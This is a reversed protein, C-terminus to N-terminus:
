FRSASTTSRGRERRLEKLADRYAAVALALFMALALGILILIDM